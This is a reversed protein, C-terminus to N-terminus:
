AVPKYNPFYDVVVAKARGKWAAGADDPTTNVIFTYYNRKTAVGFFGFDMTEGIKMAKASPDARLEPALNHGNFVADCAQKPTAGQNVGAGPFTVHQLAACDKTRVAKLFTNVSSQFDTGPKPKSGIQQDGANTLWFRYRGDWDLVFVATHNTYRGLKPGPGSAIAATGYERAQTFRVGKLSRALLPRYSPCEDKAIAPSGPTAAAPRTFTLAFPAYAQCSQSAIAKNFAPLSASLSEKAEPSAKWASKAQGDGSNDDGGCAAAGLILAGGVLVVLTKRIM